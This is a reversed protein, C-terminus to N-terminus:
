EGAFSLVLDFRQLGSENYTGQLSTKNVSVLIEKGVMNVDGYGGASGNGNISGYFRILNYGRSSRGFQAHDYSEPSRYTESAILAEVQVIWM